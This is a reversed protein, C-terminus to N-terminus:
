TNARFLIVLAEPKDQNARSGFSMQRPLPARMRVSISLIGCGACHEAFYFGNLELRKWGPGPPKQWEGASVGIVKSATQICFSWKRALNWFSQKQWPKLVAGVLDLSACVRRGLCSPNAGALGANM